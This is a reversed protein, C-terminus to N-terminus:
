RHVRTVPLSVIVQRLARSAVYLCCVDTVWGMGDIPRSWTYGRFRAVTTTVVSAEIMAPLSEGM